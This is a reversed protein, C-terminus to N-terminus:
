DAYLQSLWQFLYPRVIPIALLRFFGELAVINSLKACFSQSLNPCNCAGFFFNAKQFGLVCFFIFLAFHQIKREFFVGHIGMDANFFKEVKGISVHYFIFTSFVAFFALFMAYVWLIIKIPRRSSQYLAHNTPWKITELM